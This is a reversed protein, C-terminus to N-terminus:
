SSASKQPSTALARMSPSSKCRREMSRTSTLGQGNRHGYSYIEPKAGTRNVFPNDEPVRGDDYLRVIKGNHKSLDQALPEGSPGRNGISAYLLGKNDFVMRGGVNTGGKIWADAVFIDTADLLQTSDFRARLVATTGGQEGLKAYSLYILHNNKFDPHLVIDLLGAHNL